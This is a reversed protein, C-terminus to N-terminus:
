AASIKSLVSQLTARFQGGGHASDLQMRYRARHNPEENCILKLVEDLETPCSSVFPLDADALYRAAVSNAPGHVIICRANALYDLLKSPFSTRVMEQSPDFSVPCVAALSDAIAELFAGRDDIRGLDVFDPIIPLLGELSDPSFTARLRLDHGAARRRGVAEVVQVFSDGYLHSMTGVYILQLKTENAKVAGEAYPLALAQCNRGTKGALAISLDPTITLVAAASQLAERVTPKIAALNPRIAAREDAWAFPDDVSYIIHKLGAFKALRAARVYARGDGGLVSFLVGKKKGITKLHASLTLGGGDYDAERKARREDLVVALLSPRAAYPKITPHLPHRLQTARRPALLVVPTWPRLAGVIPVLARDLGSSAVNEHPVWNEAYIFFPGKFPRDISESM